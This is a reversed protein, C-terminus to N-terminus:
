CGTEACGAVFGDSYRSRLCLGSHKLLKTWPLAYFSNSVMGGINFATGDRLRKELFDNDKFITRVGKSVEKESATRGHTSGKLDYKEHVQLTVVDVGLIM